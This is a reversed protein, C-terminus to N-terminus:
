AARRALTGCTVPTVHAFQNPPFYPSPRFNKPGKATSASDYRSMYLFSKM